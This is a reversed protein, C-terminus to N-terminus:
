FQQYKKDNNIEKLISKLRYESLRKRSIIFTLNINTLKYMYSYFFAQCEESVSKKLKTNSVKNCIIVLFM